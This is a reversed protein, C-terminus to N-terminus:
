ERRGTRAVAGPATPAPRTSDRFAFCNVVADSDLRRAVEVFAADYVRVSGDPREM